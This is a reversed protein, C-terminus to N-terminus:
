KRDKGFLVAEPHRELYSSLVRFARAAGAVEQLTVRIQHRFASPEELAGDVTALTTEAQELARRAAASTKEVEEVLPRLDALLQNVAPVTEADVRRVVRQTDKLTETLAPVTEADVRRVVQRADKLTEDLAAVTQGDVHRVLAQIAELTESTKATTTGLAKGLTALQADANKVLRDVGTLAANGAALAGKLEPGNVLRSVGQLVEQVDRTLEAVNIDELSRGLASMTSPITPFEPYKEAKGVLRIPTNPHFDLDIALQGTVFSQTELQARLGSQILRQAGARGKEFRAGGGGVEAIRDAEIEFFVPIRIQGEKPDVVVKIDTVAGVKVGRFTVPAGVALGKISEDFYAVWPQTARFFKGGGFVVLGAVALVVAGLVFAGLLAPNPKRAM